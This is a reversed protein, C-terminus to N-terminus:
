RPGTVRLLVPIDVEALHSEGDNDAYIRLCKM